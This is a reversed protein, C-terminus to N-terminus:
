SVSTGAGRLLLFSTQLLILTFKSKDLMDENKESEKGGGAASNLKDGIGGFFGGNKGSNQQQNSQEGQERSQQQGEGQQNNDGTLNKVFDM